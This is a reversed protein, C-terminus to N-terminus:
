QRPRRRSQSREREARRAPEELAASRTASGVEREAQVRAAAYAEAEAKLRGRQFLLAAQVAGRLWGVLSSARPEVDRWFLTPERPFIQDFEALLSAEGALQARVQEILVFLHEGIRFVGVRDRVSGDALAWASAHVEEAIGQLRVLSEVQKRTLAVGERLSDRGFSRQRLQARGIRELPHVVAAGVANVVWGGSCGSRSAALTTVSCFLSHSM